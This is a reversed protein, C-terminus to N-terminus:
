TLHERDLLSPSKFRNRDLQHNVEWMFWAEGTLTVKTVLRVIKTLDHTRCAGGYKPTVRSSPRM